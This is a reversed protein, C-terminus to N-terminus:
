GSDNERDLIIIWDRPVPLLTQAWAQWKNGGSHSTAEKCLRTWHDSCNGAEGKRNWSSWGSGILSVIEIIRIANSMWSTIYKDRSLSQTVTNHLVRSDGNVLYIDSLLDTIIEVLYDGTVFGRGTHCVGNRITECLKSTLQCGPQYRLCLLVWRETESRGAVSEISMTWGPLARGTSCSRPAHRTRVAPKNRLVSNNNHSEEEEDETWLCLHAINHKM